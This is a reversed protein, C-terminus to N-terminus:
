LCGTLQLIDDRYKLQFYRKRLAAMKEEPLKIRRTQQALLDNKSSIIKQLEKATMLSFIMKSVFTVTPTRSHTIHCWLIITNNVSIHTIYSLQM